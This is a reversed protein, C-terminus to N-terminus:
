TGIAVIKERFVESPTRYGLKKRPRKNLLAVYRKFARGDLEDFSQGKPLFQRLLGNANEVIPKDTACYPRAFYVHTGTSSELEDFFAFEKGHDVTLTQRAGAPLVSFLKHAGAILESATRNEMPCAMLYGTQREVFTALVRRGKSIRMTDGEWDGFRGQDEVIEPRQDIPRYGRLHGRLASANKRGRYTRWKRNNHRLYTYLTGGAQRDRAVYRYITQHSVRESFVDHTLRGAIQEPSWYRRLDQVVRKRLSAHRDLKLPNRPLKRRSRAMLLATHPRYTGDRCVNRRLERSISSPSRGLTKAIKRLSEHDARMRAIVKRECASLHHYPM